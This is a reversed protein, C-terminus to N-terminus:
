SLVQYFVEGQQIMGLKTRAVSSIVEANNRLNSVQQSLALNQQVLKGNIIEQTILQKKVTWLDFLGDRDFWLVYQLYLLTMALLVYSAKINVLSM